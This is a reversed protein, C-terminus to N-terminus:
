STVAQIFIVIFAFFMGAAAFLLSAAVLDFLWKPMEGSNGLDIKRKFYNMSM